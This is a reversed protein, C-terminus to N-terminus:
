SISLHQASVPSVQKPQQQAAPPVIPLASQAQPARSVSKPAATPPAGTSEEADAKLEFSEGAPASTAPQSPTDNPSSYYALRRARADEVTQPVNHQQDSAQEDNSAFLGSVWSWAQQM